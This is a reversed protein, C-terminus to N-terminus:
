EAKPPHKQTWERALRQAEDIQAPTMRTAALKERYQVVAKQNDGPPYNMTALDFWMHAQVNDISTGWGNAYMIGLNYQAQAYGQEAAKRWWSVAEADDRIVGQGAAYMLALNNQAGAHGQDAAKRYWRLAEADSQPAGRGDDFMLGVDYQALIHGREALPLWEKLAADYDGQGYATLGRNFEIQDAEKGSGCSAVFFLLALALLM